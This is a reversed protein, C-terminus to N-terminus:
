VTSQVFYSPRVYFFYLALIILNIIPNIQCLIELKIVNCFFLVNRTTGVVVTAVVVTAVVVTAVVVIAVGVTAIGVIAVVFFAVVVTAFTVLYVILLALCNQTLYVWYFVLRTNGFKNNSYNSM